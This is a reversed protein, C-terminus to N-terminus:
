HGSEVLAIRRRLAAAAASDGAAQARQAAITLWALLPRRWGQASANDIALGIVPPSARGSELLVAAGVQRSLPDPMSQLASLTAADSTGPAAIARHHQPLQTADAATARGALYAAYALEAPPVDARLAEFGACPEFALAAVQAACRTLEARALLDARGTRGIEARATAFEREAVATRGELYAQTGRELAGQANLKWDPQQPASACGAISLATALGLTVRAFVAAGARGTRQRQGRWPTLTSTLTQRRLGSRRAFRALEALAHRAASPRTPPPGIM